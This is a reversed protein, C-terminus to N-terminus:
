RRNNDLPRLIYEISFAAISFVEITRFLTGYKLALVQVTELIVVLVNVVILSLIFVSVFRSIKINTNTEIALYDFITKKLTKYM